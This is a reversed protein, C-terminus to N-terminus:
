RLWGFLDRCRVHTQMGRPMCSVREAALVNHMKSGQWMFRSRPQVHPCAAHSCLKSQSLPHSPYSVAFADSGRHKKEKEPDKKGANQGARRRAAGFIYSQTLSTATINKQNKIAMSAFTDSTSDSMNAHALRCRRWKKVAPMAM